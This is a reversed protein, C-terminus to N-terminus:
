ISPRTRPPSRRKTPCQSEKVRQSTASSSGFPHQAPDSSRLSPHVLVRKAAVLRGNSQIRVLQGNPKRVVPAARDVGVVRYNEPLEDIRLSQQVTLQLTVM